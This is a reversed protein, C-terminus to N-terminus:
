LARMLHVFFAIGRTLDQLSIREDMGHIRDVDEARLLLPRFHYTNEAIHAYHRSDTAGVVLYPAVVADPYLGRVVRHLLSFAPSDTASVASPEASTKSVAIEIPMDDVIREVHRRVGEASEGHLIRFNVTATARTPLVNEKVGGEIRTVATTTHVLARTSPKEALKRLLGREFPFFGLNVLPIRRYWPMEPALYRFMERVAPTLRLPFPESELRRIAALLVGIATDPHPMSAHGGETRATLELTVYGKQAIGLLAVPPSVGQIIGQTLLGGEDLVFDLKVGLKELTQAIARAGHTGGVEEDGGLGLYITAQPQFGGTLLEEAAALIAMVASKDDLAGRGWVHGDGVHGEFPSHRWHKGKGQAAPVVDTHALMLVPKRAPDRGKWTYLLSHADLRERQMVAHVRPFARELYGYFEQFQGPDTAGPDQHSVTAYTLARALRQSAEATDLKIRPLPEAPLQLSTQTLTCGALTPLLLVALVTHAFRSKM